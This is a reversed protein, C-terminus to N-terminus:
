SGNGNRYGNTTSLRFSNRSFDNLQEKWNGYLMANVQTLHCCLMLTDKVGARIGPTTAALYEYIVLLTGKPLSSTM